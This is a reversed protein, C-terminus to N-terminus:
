SQIAHELRLFVLRTCAATALGEATREAGYWWGNGQWTEKLAGKQGNM